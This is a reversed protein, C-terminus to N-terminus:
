ALPTPTRLINKLEHILQDAQNDKKAISDAASRLEVRESDTLDKGTWVIVPIRRGVTTKRFRRLFEFGNM